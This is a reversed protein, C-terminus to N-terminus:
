EPRKVVLDGLDLTEGAKAQFEKVTEIGGDGDASIRYTAGPILAPLTLDGQADSKKLDAYNTRDINSIFDADAAFEGRQVAAVDYRSAGPTVVMQVNAYHDALPEGLRDVIRLKAQGCPQLVISPEGGAKLLATAGLRRRADLIYVPYEVNPALGSLEFRGGLTPTTDGSWFLSSDWINLRSVVLAEEVLDGRDDVIQGKVTAGPQLELKVELFEAGVAPSLEAIAHAYNREGGPKGQELQRQGIEQRVYSGQSTSALLRGPGPLVAISFNGEHDSLQIGQWGTLIAESHHPNNFSEPVYQVTAGAVPTGTGAEVVQGHVLVGRPLALDVQKVREGTQWHISESFPTQYALYPVGDPPYATLGFRIGPHPNIRYRGKEDAQGAVSVMSGAFEQQSAWVTIRAHPAPEGSDAYRVLGEFWQAPALALVAEEGPQVNEVLPRYTGDREGRQESMGTNLAIDQPAFRATGEVKMFIGHGAPVGRMTFRGQEDSTVSPLWAAPADDGSYGVGQEANISKTRAMVSQVAIRVGAAPQGELDILRGRIPEEQPLELPADIKDAALNIQRWAVAAGDKRAIINAYTHTKFTVGSLRLEYRGHVDTVGEALVESRPSLDGGRAPQMKWGIAAVHAGAVAQGGSTAQGRIIAGAARAPILIGNETVVFDLGAAALVRGFVERLPLNRVDVSIRVQESVGQARVRKLDITVPTKYSKELEDLVFILPREAVKLTVPKDLRTDIGADTNAPSAAPEDGAEDNSADNPEDADIVLDGLDKNEGPMVQVNEFPQGIGMDIIDGQYKRPASANAHYTWGPILGDLHFRGEQDVPITTPNASLKPHPAWMASDDDSNLKEYQVFLSADDIPEGEADVLRGQVSGAAILKFELTEKMGQTAIGGGALNLKRHFIFVKRKEGPWLDQIEFQPGEQRQWGFRENAGYVQFDTVANGEPDVARVTVSPSAFLPMEVRVVDRGEAAPVEAVREYNQPMLYHPLTPFMKTGALDESGAIDDAGFGRAFRDIGDRDMARGDYRFALVGRTPLAPVRFEGKGNTWYRGDLYAARLGSIAAELEPNRFFYYTIEGTFPKDTAADFVRGEAWVGRKLRFDLETAAGAGSTDAAHGVPIYPADGMTFAVLQNGGGLPLGSIRYRGAADTRTAFHERERSSSLRDGHIVFARVVADAIPDGTELDLVRGEVPKSPGVAHLFENPYVTQSGGREHRDSTLVIKEGPENRVVIETSEIGEGEILLQVLRKPGLDRLEFRGEADTTARPLADRLQVPEIVNLLDNVRTQWAANEVGRAEAEQVGYRSANEDNFWRIRVTAGAVPQGNIDVLRGRIPEGPAPLAAPGQQGGVVRALTRLLGGPANMADRVASPWTVTFGHGPATVVIRDSYDWSAPDNETVHPPPPAFRFAGDDGSTAVLQPPQPQLDHVRSRIWYLKAGSVPKGGSGTVRGRLQEDPMAEQDDALPQNQEAADPRAPDYETKRSDNAKRNGAPNAKKNAEDAPGDDDAQAKTVSPQPGLGVLGALMTGTLGGAIVLVLLLNGARTSLSRSTDMIRAVRKALISRLSVMAVGGAGVPLTSLEALDVLRRAYAERDGGLQVVYDDCVEEAATELRRALLWVLPQYFFVAETIRRLLNWVCDRRRLHALEHILVDRVPLSQDSEPLLIAPRVLGALCPSALYPSRLVQPPSVGLRKALDCCAQHTAEDAPAADRRLRDLRTWAWGLRLLLVASGAFWVLCIAIAALGFSRVEFLWTEAPVTVSSPEPRSNEATPLQMAGSPLPNAGVANAPSNSFSPPQRRDQWYGGQPSMEAALPSTTGLLGNETPPSLPQAAAAMRQPPAASARPPTGSVQEYTWAAPMEISWGSVGSLALLSTALPCVLAAVLTTRYIASQLASGRRRVLGACALGAAIVLTSQLLWNCAFGVAGVAADLLAMETQLWNM